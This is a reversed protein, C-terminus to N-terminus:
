TGTKGLPWSVRTTACFTASNRASEGVDVWATLPGALADSPGVVQGACRPVRQEQHGGSPRQGALPNGDGNLDVWNQVARKVDATIFKHQQQLEVVKRLAAGQDKHSGSGIPDEEANAKQLQDAPTDLRNGVKECTESQDAACLDITEHAAQSLAPSFEAETQRRM